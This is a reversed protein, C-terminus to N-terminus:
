PCLPVGHVGPPCKTGGTSKPDKPQPHITAKTSASAVPPPPANQKARLIALQTELEDIKKQASDAHTAVTVPVAPAPTARTGARVAFVVALTATVLAFAGLLTWRHDNREDVKRAASMAALERAHAEHRAIAEAQLALQVAMRSKEIQAHKEAEIHAEAVATRIASERDEAARAAARERAEMMAREEAERRAAQERARVETEEARRQEELQRLEELSTVVSSERM